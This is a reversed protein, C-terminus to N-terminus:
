SLRIRPDVYAYVVDTLLNGLVVLTALLLTISQVVQYDLRYISDFFLRGIGPWAFITEIVITGSLLFAVRYGLISVIPLLSNRVVHRFMIASQPLGKARATTVYEQNLVELTAGRTLRAIVATQESALVAVPLIYGRWTEAGYPPVWDLRLAFLYILMLAIWFNPIAVGVTSGMMSGYDFWSYRRIAALVGAPIALAIAIILAIANLKLTVPAAERIMESVPTGTRVVSTGLDGSLINTMWTSYQVYWPDNLGWKEEIAERQAKSVPAEGIMTDVPSGPALQLIGFTVFSVLFIVVLGQLLRQVIFAVM